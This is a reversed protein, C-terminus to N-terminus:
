LATRISLDVNDAVVSRVLAIRDVSRCCVQSDEEEMRRKQSSKEWDTVTRSAAYKMTAVSLGSHSERGGLIELSPTVKSSAGAVAGVVAGAPLKRTAALRADAATTLM